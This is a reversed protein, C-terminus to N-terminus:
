RKSLFEPYDVPYRVLDAIWAVFEKNPGARHPNHFEWVIEGALNVEFARGHTTEVVLTNEKDGVRQQSGCVNSFFPAEESGQYRWMEKMEPLQFEVVASRGGGPGKNDFLLIADGGRSIIPEHQRDYTAMHSKSRKNKGTHHWVVKKKAPDLIFIAALEPSSLLLNGKAFAAGHKASSGDLEQITNTHMVDGKHMRRREFIPASESDLLAELISVQKLVKGDASLLTAFDELIPKDKRVREVVHAKRTLVWIRGDELVQLDHHARNPLAWLVKSDKDIKILGKGEYIALVDGNPFLHARRWFQSDVDKKRVKVSPLAQQIPLSWVHLDKGEADMLRAEARHGSLWFNVGPASGKENVTVGTSAKPGGESSGVYGIAELAEIEENLTRAKHWRGTSPAEAEEDILGPEPADPPPKEKVRPEAPAPEPTPPPSSCALLLFLM